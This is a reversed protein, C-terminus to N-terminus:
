EGGVATPLWVISAVNHSSPQQWLGWEAPSWLLFDAGNCGKKWWLDFFFVLLFWLLPSRCFNFVLLVWLIAHLFSPPLSPPLCLSLSLIWIKWGAIIAIGKMAIECSTIKRTLPSTMAQWKPFESSRSTTSLKVRRKRDVLLSFPSSISLPCRSFSLPSFSFPSLPSLLLSFCILNYLFIFM